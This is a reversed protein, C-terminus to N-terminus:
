GPKHGPLKQRQEVTLVQDIQMRTEKRMQQKKLQKEKLIERIKVQQKPTLDLKATLRELKNEIKLQMMAQRKEPSVDAKHGKKSCHHGKHHSKKDWFSHEGHKSMGPKHEYGSDALAIASAGTLAGTLVVMGMMKTIKNM